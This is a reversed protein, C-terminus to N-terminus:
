VLVIIIFFTAPRFWGELNSNQISVKLKCCLQDSVDLILQLHYLLVEMNGTSLVFRQNQGLIVSPTCRLSFKTSIIGAKEVKEIIFAM